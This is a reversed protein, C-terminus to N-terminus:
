LLEFENNFHQPKNIVVVGAFSRETNMSATLWSWSDTNPNYVEVSDLNSAGDNGGVVYLLGNLAVVGANFM